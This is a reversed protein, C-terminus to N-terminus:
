PYWTPRNDFLDDVLNARKFENIKEEGLLCPYFLNSESPCVYQKKAEKWVNNGIDCVLTDNSIEGFEKKNSGLYVPRTAGLEKPLVKSKEIPKNICGQGQRTTAKVICPENKRNPPKPLNNVYKGEDDFGVVLEMEKVTTGKFKRM